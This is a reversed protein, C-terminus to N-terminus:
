IIKGFKLSTSGACHTANAPYTCCPELPILPEGCILCTFCNIMSEDLSSFSERLCLTANIWSDSGKSIFAETFGIQMACSDGFGPCIHIVAPHDDFVLRPLNLQKRREHIKDQPFLTVISERFWLLITKYAQLEFLVLIINWHRWNFLTHTIWWEM